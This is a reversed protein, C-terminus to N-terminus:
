ELELRKLCTELREEPSQGGWERVYGVPGMVVRAGQKSIFDAQRHLHGCGHLRVPYKDTLELYRTSGMFAGFYEFDPNTGTYKLLERYFPFHTMLLMERGLERQLDRELHTYFYQTVEIDNMFGFHSLFRCFEVDMFRRGARRKLALEEYTFPHGEWLMSYDYWAPTGVLSYKGVQLPNQPLYHWSCSSVIEPLVTEYLKLSDTQDDKTWLDHNGPVFVKVFDLHSFQSLVTTMPGIGGCLDGLVCLIDPPTLEAKHLLAQWVAQNQPSSDVHVDSLIWLNM